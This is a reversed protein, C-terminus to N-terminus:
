IFIYVCIRKKYEFDVRKNYIIRTIDSPVNTM